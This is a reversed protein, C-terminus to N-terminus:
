QIRPQRRRRAGVVIPMVAVLMALAIAAFYGFGTKYAHFLLIAVPISCFAFAIWCLITQVRSAWRAGAIAGIGSIVGCASWMGCAAVGVYYDTQSGGKAILAMLLALPSFVIWLFGSVSQDSSTNM